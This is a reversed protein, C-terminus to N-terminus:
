GFEYYGRFLDNMEAETLVCGMFQKGMRAEDVLRISMGVQEVLSEPTNADLLCQEYTKTTGQTMGNYMM